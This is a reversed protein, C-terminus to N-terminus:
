FGTFATGLAIAAVALSAVRLGTGMQVFIGAVLLVLGVVIRITKDMGGVNKEM